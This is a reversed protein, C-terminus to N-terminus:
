DGTVVTADAKRERRRLRGGRLDYVSSAYAAAAPDHTVLVMAVGREACLATLLRLVEEGREVDLSGTPEDALLLSPDTSLARAILVRQREGMSLDEAAHRLRGGLGLADLLPVVRRRAERWGVKRDLLKLAANDIATVGPLLDLSQRVFGMETRRYHAAERISLSCIDRGNVLISGRDPKLLAAILLLLTSKGSGSPGYIACLEGRAVDLTVGDVARIVEGAPGHHHKVVNRLQLM